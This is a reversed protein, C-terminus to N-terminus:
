KPGTTGDGNVDQGQCSGTWCGVPDGSGDYVIVGGNYTPVIGLKQEQPAYGSSDLEDYIKNVAISGVPPINVIGAAADFIQIAIKNVEELIESATIADTDLAGKYLVFATKGYRGDQEATCDDDSWNCCKSSGPDIVQKFSDGDVPLQLATIPKDSDNYVCYALAPETKVLTFTAAGIGLSLAFFIPKNLQQKIPKVLKSIMPLVSMTNAEVIQDSQTFQLFKM